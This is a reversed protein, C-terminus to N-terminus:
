EILWTDIYELTIYIYGFKLAINYHTINLYVLMLSIKESSMNTVMVNFINHEQLLMVRTIEELPIIM